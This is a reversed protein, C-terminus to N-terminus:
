TISEMFRQIVCGDHVVIFYSSPFRTGFNVALHYIKDGPKVAAKFWLWDNIWDPSADSFRAEIEEFLLPGTLRTDERAAVESLREKCEDSAGAFAPSLTITIVLLAALRMNM